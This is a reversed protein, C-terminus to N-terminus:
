ALRLVVFGSLILCPFMFHAFRNKRGCFYSRRRQRDDDSANNQETQCASRGSRSEANRQIEFSRSKRKSHVVAFRRRGAYDNGFRRINRRGAYDYKLRRRARTRKVFDNRRRIRRRFLAQRRRWASARRNKATLRGFPEAFRRHFM